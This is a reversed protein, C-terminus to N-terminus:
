DSHKLQKNLKQVCNMLSLLLDNMEELTEKLGNKNSVVQKKGITANNRTSNKKEEMSISQVYKRAERELEGSEIRKELESTFQSLSMKRKKNLQEILQLPPTSNMQTKKKM